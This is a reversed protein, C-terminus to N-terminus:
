LAIRVHSICDSSAITHRLSSSTMPPRVPQALVSQDITTMGASREWTADIQFTNSVMAAASETSARAPLGTLYAKLYRDRDFQQFKLGLTMM